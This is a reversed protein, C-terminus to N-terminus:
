HQTYRMGHVEERNILDDNSALQLRKESGVARQEQENSLGKRSGKIKFM